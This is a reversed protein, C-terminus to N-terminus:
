NTQPPPLPEQQQQQSAIRTERVAAIRDLPSEDMVTMLTVDPPASAMDMVLLLRHYDDSAMHRDLDEQHTWEEVFTLVNPDDADQQLRCGVCGREAQTPGILARLSQVIEARTDATALLRLTFVVM